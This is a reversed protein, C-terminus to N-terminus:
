MPRPNPGKGKRWGTIIGSCGRPYWLGSVCPRFRTPLEQGEFSDREVRLQL